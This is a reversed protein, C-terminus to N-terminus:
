GTEDEDEYGILRLAKTKYGMKTSQYVLADERGHTVWVEKPNVEEITQLLEPWDCHDSIILPLEVLRQRARARVQMWGSAMVTRLKPLTRSWRDALASPPAIVIEGALSQKDEVDSVPVLEGLEIGKEQYLNCLKILAGHLYIPKHYGAERLGIIVRQCKGLAYAGILHCRDPFIAVSAMLKKIEQEIPPHTFVPLAFTAETIFVDCPVVEFPPCTPDRRRKYDGSIVLVKGQYEIRVQCSGLIHGAPHLSVLVPDNTKGFQKIEGMNLAFTQKAMEEGYRTQMIAITDGSAYVSGHGSRAHDAHGHTVIAQAVPQMPDIYLNAPKCYLGPSEVSMWEQPHM